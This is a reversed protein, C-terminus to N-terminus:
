RKATRKPWYSPLSSGDRDGWGEKSADDFVALTREVLPLDAGRVKAEALMTRLDKRISDVNFAPPIGAGGALAEAVVPGRTKLINPAGSTDSFLEMAWKPDLGLHRILVYAEGLAQYAVLLPLNIALKMSAGAGVPGIHEFRRCMQELLPKARAVDAKEGGVLGLLKGQRAPTVTGGVPCEVFAAQKGRVKDALAQEDAPQVTSMDIILKGTITGALVGKPGGYVAQQAEANTLITIITEVASALEAPTTALKIGAKALPATKDATRNWVTVEHGVEQLRQAIAAGM